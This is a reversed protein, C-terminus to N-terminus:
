VRPFIHLGGSSLELSYCEGEIWLWFATQDRNDAIFKGGDVLLVQGIKENGFCCALDSASIYYTNRGYAEAGYELLLKAVGIGDEAEHGGRQSLALQLPTEGRNSEADVKAGHDLLVRVINLKKKYCAFHLPTANNNDKEDVNAGRELLLKVIDSGDDEGQSTGLRALLHLPSQGQDNRSNVDAQHDLLARTFSLKETIVALHLPTWLDDSQANVDAGHRLIFLVADLSVEDHQDLAVHLVTQQRKNRVHVSGGHELLLEAVQFHKKCLAAVLPFEFSGAIANVDQPYEIIIRRVLDQVGCLASYYLPSPFEFPFKGGSEADINYLGIWTSFHPKEQEFLRGMGDILHSAVNDFRAHAVWHRAAYEALPSEKVSKNENRDDLHLLLGLCAQALTTHALRPLIHYTSLNGTFTALRDSTLFEKVSFHSFQVVRSGGKDVITVLISCISLVAEEQDKLRWNPRFKPIGGQAAAFDFALIEVLEEVRLPRVAVALFHLLLCAHEQNSEDINELVRLYTEDLTEPLKGLIERVDPQAADRLM